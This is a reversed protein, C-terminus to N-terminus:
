SMLFCDFSIIASRVLLTRIINAAGRKAGNEIAIFILANLRETYTMIHLFICLIISSFSYIQTVTIEATEEKNFEAQKQQYTSHNRKGADGAPCDGFLLVPKSYLLVM